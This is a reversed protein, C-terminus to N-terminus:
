NGAKTNKSLRFMAKETPRIQIGYKDVQEGIFQLMRNKNKNSWLYPGIMALRKNGGGLVMKSGTKDIEMYQVENWRIQYSRLPLHYRVSDSDVQMSGSSLILYVGPLLLVFFWLSTGGDGARSAAVGCFLFFAVGLWGVVKSPTHKVILVGTTDASSM